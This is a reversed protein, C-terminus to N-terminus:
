VAPKRAVVVAYSPRAGRLTAGDIGGAGGCLADLSGYAFVFEAVWRKLADPRDEFREIHFGAAALSQLLTQASCLRGVGARGTVDSLALRGGPKLVRVWEGLAQARDTLTSLVCEALVGDFSEGSFPLQAADAAVFPTACGGAEADVDVGIAAVGRRM